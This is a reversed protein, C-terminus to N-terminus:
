RLDDITERRGRWKDDVAPLGNGVAPDGPADLVTESRGSAEVRAPWQAPYLASLGPDAIVDVREAIPALQPDDVPRLREVDHLDEPSSLALAVNWRASAMRSLRSGSQAAVDIMTAYAEPVHVRVRQAGADPGLRLAAEVAALSQKATPFPKVSVQGIALPADALLVSADLPVGAGNAIRDLEVHAVFGDRAACAAGCGARAADGLTLWRALPVGVVPSTLGTARTLAIGLANAARSPDLDLLTATVAAATFPACFYTPWVGRYVVRAGDIAAGLRAMAEYGVTIADALRSGGVELAAALAVATPIVVAGPTTCTPMHIDDLETLRVTAVRQAVSGLLGPDWRGVSAAVARGESTAAGALHAGLGDLLRAGVAETDAALDRFRRALDHLPTM